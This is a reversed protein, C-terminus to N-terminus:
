NCAVTEYMYVSLNNRNLGACERALKKEDNRHSEERGNGYDDAQPSKTFLTLRWPSERRCRRRIVQARLHSPVTEYTNVSM